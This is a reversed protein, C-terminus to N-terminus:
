KTPPWRAEVESHLEKPLWSLYELLLANSNQKWLGALDSKRGIQKASLATLLLQTRPQLRAWSKTMITPSSLLKPTWQKLEEFVEGALLFQAFFKFKDACTPYEIPSVPLDWNQKGYTAKAYCKVAGTQHDYFPPPDEVPKDVHCLTPAIPLIWQPEIGSVGRLYIKGGNEIAEQYIIWEPQEGRLVSDRHLFV